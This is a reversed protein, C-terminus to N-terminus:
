EFVYQIRWEKYQKEVQLLTVTYCSFLCPWLIFAFTVEWSVVLSPPSPPSGAEGAAALLM